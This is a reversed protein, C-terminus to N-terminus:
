QAALTQDLVNPLDQAHHGSWVVRGNPGYVVLTPLLEVGLMDLTPRAGYGIPWYVDSFDLLFREITPLEAEVEPTLGIFEVGLPRYQQYLKALKPMAARCPFCWTAWCDVVVIKGRLSEVSPIGTGRGRLSPNPSPSEADPSLGVNLWGEAMLPPMARGLPVPMESASQGGPWMMLTVAGVLLLLGFVESRGLKNSRRTDVM